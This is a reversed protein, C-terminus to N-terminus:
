LRKSPPLSSWCNVKKFADLFWGSTDIVRIIMKECFFFFSGGFLVMQLIPLLIWRLICVLITMLNGGFFFFSFFFLFLYIFLSVSVYAKSYLFVLLCSWFLIIRLLSFSSFFLQEECSALKSGCKIWLMTYVYVYKPSFFSKTRQEALRTENKIYVALGYIVYYDPLSYNKPWTKKRRGESDIKEVKKESWVFELCFSISYM